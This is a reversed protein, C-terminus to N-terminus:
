QKRAAEVAVTITVEDGLAGNAVYTDMGYDSRKITFTTELGGKYGQATQKATFIQMDLTIPKTVGHFTLDGTVNAKTEGTRTIKASKFSITPYEAVNFFDASKLHGDRKSNKTDVSDAKVQFDFHSASPDAEDLTYTGQIDNFRGYFNAVGMHSIKFIVSSHVNDVEFGVAEGAPAPEPAGEHAAAFGLSLGLAAVLAVIGIGNRTRM